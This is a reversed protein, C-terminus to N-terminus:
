ATVKWAPSLRRLQAAAEAVAEILADVQDLTNGRGLSFRVSSRACEATLGMATLVHSPEVAGSSCASGSSVAFGKLDLSIVMAEGEIAEFRINTTNPSRPAAGGNVTVGPVRERIGEELLDRLERIREAEDDLNAVAWEAAHAFAVVGPINETGPRRDREHHGGHLVPALRTGRRVFLAGVGKPANVKHGSLSYLDAPLKSLNVEVKGLAQVGDVHFTVGLERALAGIRAVPQVVGTENNVHMVSVLVTEPRLALRIDDVDVLGDGGVPVRTVEVGERELQACARLVAVHEISTTVVHKRAAPNARVSGLVALNDAETGGSVFVIERADAGIAAALTRRAMEMHQKAVQGFYHISSGNGYVGALAPILVKLVEDSVPTTANHDFYSRQM